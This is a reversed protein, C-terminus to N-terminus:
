ICGTVNVFSALGSKSSIHISANQMFSDNPARIKKGRLVQGFLSVKTKYSQRYNMIGRGEMHLHM